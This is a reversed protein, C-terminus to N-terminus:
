KTAPLQLKPAAPKPANPNPKIINVLEVEFVLPMFPPIVNQAGQEGYALNSPIVFTAKSGKNLLQLGEDWGPIVKHEGVAIRIPAFQRMPENMKAKVAEEKINTDFVKGTSALKGVYNVEATDGVAVNPGSGKKSIVYNLGSATKNVKLDNDAIYKSMIAPERKKSAEGLGKFYDSIRGQFVQESLKGKQIVKEVKINYIIYKGKLGPPKPQGKKFMSDTNIKITASDGESLLALGSYIDGKSQPKQMLSPMPRGSDYTSGLVSDADNKAILNVSIFDGEKVTPGEKDTHIEYLLGGPAEKLGGNCSALGIAALALFMLNKKM